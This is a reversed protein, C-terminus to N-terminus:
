NKLKTEFLVKRCTVGNGAHCLAITGVKFKIPLNTEANYCGLTIHPQYNEFATKDAFTDLWLKTNETIGTEDGKYLMELSAGKRLYRKVKNLITEHLAQLEPTNILELVSKNGEPKKTYKIRNITLNFSNVNLDQLYNQISKIEKEDIIGMALTIHPRYDDKGLPRVRECRKNIEICLDEVEKPLLLSVNIAIKGM